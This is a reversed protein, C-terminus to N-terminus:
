LIVIIMRSFITSKTGARGNDVLSAAAQVIETEELYKLIAEEKKFSTAKCAETSRCQKDFTCFTCDM